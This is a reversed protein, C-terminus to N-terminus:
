RVSTQRVELWQTAVRHIALFDPILKEPAEAYKVPIKSDLEKAQNLYYRAEAQNGVQAELSALALRVTAPTAKLQRAKQLAARSASYNGLACEAYGLCFHASGEEPKLEIAKGAAEKAREFWLRQCCLEDHECTPSGKQWDRLRDQESLNRAEEIMFIEFQKRAAANEGNRLALSVILYRTGTRRM